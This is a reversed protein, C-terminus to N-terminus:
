KAYKKEETVIKINEEIFFKRDENLQWSRYSVAKGNQV